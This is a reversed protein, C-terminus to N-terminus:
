GKTIRELVSPLNPIGIRDFTSSLLFNSFFLTLLAAGANGIVMVGGAIWGIFFTAIAFFILIIKGFRVMEQNIFDGSKLYPQYCNRFIVLKSAIFPFIFFACVAVSIGGLRFADYLPLLIYESGELNDLMHIGFVGYAFSICFDTLLLILSAKLVLLGINKYHEKADMMPADFTKLKEIDELILEKMNNGMM